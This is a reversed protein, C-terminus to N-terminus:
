HYHLCFSTINRVKSTSSSSLYASSPCKEKYASPGSAWAMRPSRATQLVGQLSAESELSTWGRIEIRVTLFPPRNLPSRQVERGSRGIPCKAPHTIPHGCQLALSINLPSQHLLLHPSVKGHDLSLVSQTTTM